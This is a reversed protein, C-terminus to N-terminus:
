RRLSLTYGQIKGEKCAIIPKLFEDTEGATYRAEVTKVLDDSWEGQGGIMGEYALQIREWRKDRDMAYYRGTITAIKIPTYDLDKLFDQLQELYKVSCLTLM